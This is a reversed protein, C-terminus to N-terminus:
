CRWLLFICSCFTRLMLPGFSLNIITDGVPNICIINEGESNLKADIHVLGQEVDKDFWLVQTGGTPIITQAADENEIITGVM